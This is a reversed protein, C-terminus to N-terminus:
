PLLLCLEGLKDLRNRGRGRRGHSPNYGMPKKSAKLCEANSCLTQEKNAWACTELRWDVCPNFETCGCQACIGAIGPFRKAIDLAISNEPVFAGRAIRREIDGKRDKSLKYRM